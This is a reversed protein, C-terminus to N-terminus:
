YEKLGPPFGSHGSDLPFHFVLNNTKYEKWEVATSVFFLTGCRHDLHLHRSWKNNEFPLRPHVLKEM